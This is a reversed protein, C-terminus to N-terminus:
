QFWLRPQKPFPEQHHNQSYHLTQYDIKNALKTTKLSESKKKHTKITNFNKIQKLHPHNHINKKETRTQLFNKHRKREFAKNEKQPM